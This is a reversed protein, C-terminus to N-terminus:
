LGKKLASEVAKLIVASSLTAGSVADVKLSQEEVIRGAIAEAGRDPGHFHRLVKVGTVRGLEVTAEVKATVPFNNQRATYVGDKVRTFDIDEIVIANIDKVPDCASLLLCSAAALAMATKKVMM